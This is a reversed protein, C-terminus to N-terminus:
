EFKGRQKEGGEKVNEESSYQSNGPIKKKQPPPCM